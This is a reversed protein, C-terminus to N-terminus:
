SSWGSRLPLALLNWNRGGPNTPQDQVNGSSTSFQLIDGDSKDVRLKTPRAAWRSYFFPGLVFLRGRALQNNQAPLSLDGPLVIGALPFLFIFIFIIFICVFVFVFIQVHYSNNMVSLNQAKNMQPPTCSTFHITCLRLAGIDLIQLSKSPNPPVHLSKSLSASVQFTVCM